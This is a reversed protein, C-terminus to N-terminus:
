KKGGKQKQKMDAVHRLLKTTRELRSEQQNCYEQWTGPLHLLGLDLDGTNLPHGTVFALYDANAYRGSWVSLAAISEIIDTGELSPDDYAPSTIGAPTSLYALADDCSLFGSLRSVWKAHRVSLAEGRELELKWVALVAPLSDPAIDYLSLDAISWPKDEPHPANMNKKVTALVKQVYSLSPWGEPPKPTQKRLVSLVENRIAPAKWKQHNRFVEAILDEVEPPVSPGRKTMEKEKKDV